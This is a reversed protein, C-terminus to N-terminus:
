PTKGTPQTPKREGAPAELWIDRLPHLDRLNSRVRGDAGVLHSYFGKVTPKVLGSIVYFYVPIVPFEDRVLIAEAEALLALRLKAMGDLRAGADTAERIQRALQDLQAPEHTHGLLFEPASLFKEVDAAAEILRDYVLSGWGTQNNGGNTLWIDLFTNPDEYDGVWGARAVDYDLSRTSQQYSQWEQNYARADINLNHRLQDAVVEALKKHAEMTNYLIGFKPFGRGDPFGAEALLKRAAAVDYSIGTQPPAYGRIGPPVFHDAPLQGLLLVNKTIQERDIALNIAQRVRADDFPKRTCNIRYYYSILAPGVYFDPRRKLDLALDQPYSGHPLWDVEGTLYLNLATTMNEIALADVSALKVEGRGWYTPSRELRIRDGVRWSALNFAGNNVIKGPLFWDRSSREVAWRPVPYFPYFATLELFYPTPAVLEVVLTHEDKAYVGGDVGFHREAEQFLARRRAGERQLETRLEILEEPKLNAGDSILFARLKPNPTGKLVGDLSQKRAFDRVAAQPVVGPHKEALEALAKVIPGELADAQARHTNFAEAFRVMHMIYAYEAGLAPDQLRRWAYTFDGATVPRGDSWRAAQRLHFTYTKGDPTINWAEAVGPGPELSRAELRTLGEFLEQAIRGEPEGTMLDPDLTKPESGNVFRFDARGRTSRSLTLGVVLLAAVLVLFASILTRRM